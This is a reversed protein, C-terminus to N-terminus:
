RLEEEHVHPAIAKQVISASTAYGMSNTERGAAAAQAFTLILAGGLLM